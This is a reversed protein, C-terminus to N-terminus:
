RRSSRARDGARARDAWRARPQKDIEVFPLFLREQVAKSLGVGTDTVDFRLVLRGDAESRARMCACRASRRHIEARQRDFSMLVQRLRAADGVVYRPCNAGIDVGGTLGKENARAQLM